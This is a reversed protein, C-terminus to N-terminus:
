HRAILIQLKYFPKPNRLELVLGASCNQEIMAKWFEIRLSAEKSIPEAWESVSGLTHV